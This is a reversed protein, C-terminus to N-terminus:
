VIGLIFPFMICFISSSNALQHSVVAADDGAQDEGADVGVVEPGVVPLVPGVHRGQLLANLIGVLVDAGLVVRPAVAVLGKEPVVADVVVVLVLGGLSSGTWILKRGDQDCSGTISPVSPLPKSTSPM